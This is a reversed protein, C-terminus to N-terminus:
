AELSWLEDGIWHVTRVGKGKVSDVLEPVDLLSWGLALPKKHEQDRIWVLDGALISPDADHVGAVMCDAGNLLFPVAGRDVEVWRVSPSQALLGRLTLSVCPRGDPSMIEVVWPIRNILLVTWDGWEAREIQGSGLSPDLHFDEILRDLLPGVAKRRVAHRHRLGIPATMSEPECPLEHRHRHEDNASAKLYATVTAM